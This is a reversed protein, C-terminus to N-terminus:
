SGAQIRITYIVKIKRNASKEIPHFCIHSLRTTAATQLAIEDFTFNGNMSTTTDTTEQGSPEAYDLTCTVVVDSYPQGSYTQIEVKNNTTDTNGADDVDVIKEFTQNYLDGLKTDTNTTKYEVNGTADIVTGGNGFKMKTIEFGAGTGSDVTGSLLSAIAVSFNEYNIANHKDLLVEQTDYDQILVHGDILALTRDAFSNNM